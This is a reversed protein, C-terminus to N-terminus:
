VKDNIKEQLLEKADNENEFEGWQSAEYEAKFICCDATVQGYNEGEENCGNHWSISDASIEAGCKCTVNM